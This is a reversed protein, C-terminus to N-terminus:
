NLLSCFSSPEGHVILGGMFAESDLYLVLKTHSNAFSSAKIKRLEVIKTPNEYVYDFATEANTKEAPDLKWDHGYKEPIVDGFSEVSVLSIRFNAQDLRWSKVRNKPKFYSVAGGLAKVQVDDSDVDWVAYAYNGNIAYLTEPHVFTGAQDATYARAKM